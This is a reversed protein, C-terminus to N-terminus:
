FSKIFEKANLVKTTIGLYKYVAKTKHTMRKDDTVLVDCLQAFYAHSSDYLRATHSKDPWYSVFDLLNFLSSFMARGSGVGQMYLYTDLGYGWKNRMKKELICLIDSPTYNNIELKNLELDKLFVDHDINMTKTFDYLRKHIWILNCEKEFASVPYRQEIGMGTFPTDPVIYNDSCIEGITKLRIDKLEPHKELGNFLEEIHTESYYYCCYKKETFSKLSIIDNEIYVFINNDLYIKM